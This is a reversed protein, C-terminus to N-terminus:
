VAHAVPAHALCGAAAEAEDEDEDEKAASDLSAHHSRAVLCASLRARHEDSLAALDAGLPEDLPPAGTPPKAGPAPPPNAAARLAQLLQAREATDTTGGVTAGGTDSNTTSEADSVALAALIAPKVSPEALKAEDEVEAM